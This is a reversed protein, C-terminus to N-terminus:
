SPAIKLKSLGLPTTSQEAVPFKGLLMERWSHLELSNHLGSCIM